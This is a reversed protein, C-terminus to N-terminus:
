SSRFGAALSTSLTVAFCAGPGTQDNSSVTLDGKHQRAIQRSILLGLGLGTEKATVFPQFLKDRVRDSVGPGSDEVTVRVSANKVGAIRVKLSGGHIMEDLANQFLNLFLQQLQDSDANLLLSPPGDVTVRVGQKQARADVLQKTGQIIAVLDCEAIELRPPRAYDLFSNLSREMREIQQSVVSLEESNMPQKRGTQVLLKVSTLPNRLEHAVGTALQAVESMRQARAAEEQSYAQVIAFAKNATRTLRTGYVTAGIVMLLVCGFLAIELSRFSQARATQVDFFKAQITEAAGRSDALAKGLNANERDMKAMMGSADSIQDVQLYDFMQDANAIQLRMGDRAADLHRVFEQRDSTPLETEITERLVDLKSDFEVQRRAVTKRVKQVDKNEFVSNATVNIDRAVESIQSIDALRRAWNRNEQVTNEHIRLLNYNLLLSLLIALLDFGALAFYALYWKSGLM